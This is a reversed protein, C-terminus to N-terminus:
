DLSLKKSSLTCWKGDHRLLQINDVLFTTTYEKHEYNEWAREFNEFTLDRYGVTVHPNFTHKIFNFREKVKSHLLSLHENVEPQVFLVPNKPNPFCGFGNLTLKFPAIHTDIKQFATIIDTEMTIERSFPPFLTIHAENKLAKSNNYNKALDEKFFRIDEIVSSPPYIAIFYLKNM